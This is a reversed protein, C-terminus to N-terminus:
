EDRRISRVRVVSVRKNYFLNGSRLVALYMGEALWSTNIAASTSPVPLNVSAVAVGNSNYLTITGDTTTPIPWSFKVQFTAPNPRVSLANDGPPLPTGPLFYTVHMDATNTRIPENFDFYIDCFNAVKDGEFLDSQPQISFKVFGHSEPENTTSDPLMINPFHFKVVGEPSIDWTCFHSSSIFRLTQWQLTTSLSDVIEVTEAEYTGTNQFRIVYELPPPNNALIAPTIYAPDVNKDNPDYSGVVVKQLLYTNNAPASDGLPMNIKGKVAVATGIPTFQNTLVTVSISRTSMPPMDGLYWYMSDSLLTTASPLAVIHSLFTPHKLGVGVAPAHASSLNAVTIIINTEFGPRFPTTNTIDISLNPQITPTLLFDYGGQQANVIRYAPSASVSPTTIWISDGILLGNFSYFGTATTTKTAGNSTKVTIGLAPSDGASLTNNQDLDWKIQGYTGQDRLPFNYPNNNGPLFTYSTAGVAELGLPIIVSIIEPYAVNTLFYSGNSNSVAQQGTTTKIVIGELIEDNGNFIGNLDKDLFVLGFAPGKQPTLAFNYSPLNGNSYAHVAPQVSLAYDPLQTLSINASPNLTTFQYIGNNNTVASAGFTAKVSQGATPIDYGTNYTGNGNIDWYVRGGPRPKVNVAQTIISDCGLWSSRTTQFLGGLAASILVESQWLYPLEDTYITLPPLSTPPLPAVVVNKSVTATGIGCAKLGKVTIQGSVNGFTVMVTNGAPADVIIQNNGTGNISCGPPATWMYKLANTVTPVSYATMADPCVQGRGSVAGIAGLVPPLSVGQASTIQFNCEDGDYGDVLLYYTQGIAVTATISIPSSGGGAFGSNCAIADDFCNPMIAVQIGNNNACNSPTVVFSVNISNAIFAIWASNNEILAGGCFSDGGSYGVTTGQFGNIVCGICATGCEDAAFESLSNCTNQSSLPNFSLLVALIVLNFLSVIKILNM